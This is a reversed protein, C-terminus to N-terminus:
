NVQMHLHTYYVDCIDLYQVIRRAQSVRELKLNRKFADGRELM